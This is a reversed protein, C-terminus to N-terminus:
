KTTNQLTPKYKYTLQTATDTTTQTTDNHNNTLNTQCHKCTTPKYEITQDPPRTIKLGHGKHGKQAGPQKGTKQRTSQPKKWPPDKSPPTSSNKSNQNLRTELEAIKLAMAQLQGQLTLITDILEEKSLKELDSRQM